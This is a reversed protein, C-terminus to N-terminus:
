FHWNSWMSLYPNRTHVIASFIYLFFILLVNLVSCRTQKRGKEARSTGFPTAPDSLAKKWSPFFTNICCSFIINFHIVRTRVDRFNWVRSPKKSTSLHNKETSLDIHKMKKREFRSFKILKIYQSHTIRTKNRCLDWNNTQSTITSSYSWLHQKRKSNFHQTSLSRKAQQTLGNLLYVYLLYQQSFTLHLTNQDRM